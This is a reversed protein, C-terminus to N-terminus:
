ERGKGGTSKIMGRGRNRERETEGMERNGIPKGMNGETERTM